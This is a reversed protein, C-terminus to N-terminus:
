DLWLHILPMIVFGTLVLAALVLTAVGMLGLAARQRGSGGCTDCVPGQKAYDAIIRSKDHALIHGSQWHFGRGSCHNCLNNNM